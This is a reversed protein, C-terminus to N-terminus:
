KSFCEPVVPTDYNLSLYTFLYSSVVDRELIEDGSSSKDDNIVDIVYWM